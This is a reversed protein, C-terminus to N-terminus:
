TLWAVGAQRGTSGGDRRHSYFPPERSCITCMGVDHVEAVGARALQARAIAKLDLNRGRRAPVDLEEAFAAHVEDGAEYCCLGAGPGIAAELREEVGLERLAGVGEALVGAALGRWGAHLMAVGGAGAIAVPLCDATLVMPAVGALVTAQGDAEHVEDTQAPDLVRRVSVGHVQRGYALRVGLRAELQARNREDTLSGEGQTTFLVRAGALELELKEARM